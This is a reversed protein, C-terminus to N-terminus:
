GGKYLRIQTYKVIDYAKEIDTVLAGKLCNFTLTDNTFEELKNEDRLILLDQRTRLGKYNFDTKTYDIILRDTETYWLCYPNTDDEEFEILWGFTHLDRLFQQIGMQKSPNGKLVVWGGKALYLNGITQIITEVKSSVAFGFQLEVVSLGNNPGYQRIKREISTVKM